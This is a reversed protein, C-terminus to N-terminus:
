MLSFKGAVKLVTRDAADLQLICLPQDRQWEELAKRDIEMVVSNTSLCFKSCKRRQEKQRKKSQGGVQCNVNHSIFKM